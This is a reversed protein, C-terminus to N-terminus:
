QRPRRTVPSIARRLGAVGASGASQKAAAAGGGNGFAIFPELAAMVFITKSVAVFMYLEV